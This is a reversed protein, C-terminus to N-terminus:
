SICEPPHDYSLGGSKGRMKDIDIFICRYEMILEQSLTNAEDWEITFSNIIVFVRPFAIAGIFIDLVALGAFSIEPKLDVIFLLGKSFYGRKINLWHILRHLYEAAFLFENSRDLKLCAGLFVFNNSYRNNFQGLILLNIHPKIYLFSYPLHMCSPRRYRQGSKLRIGLYFDILCNFHTLKLLM